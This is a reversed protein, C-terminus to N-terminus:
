QPQERPGTSPAVPATSSADPPTQDAAAASQNNAGRNSSAPATGTTLAALTGDIAYVYIRGGAVVPRATIPKKAVRTRGLLRGDSQAILHLWGEMDGVVILNGILAPATLQRNHLREQKWRGAGSVPDAGWVQDQSDTVFLHSDNAAIGAHSSLQRRWRVTGGEQDVAALDGNYTGVFVLNGVLIPDADIDAIRALESRGSPPTVTVEWLPTGDTTDLKVLKGGALGAIVGKPTITPTSSGRLTLIPAPYSVRWLETGKISDLAIVTDDLTHVIVKGDATHRPVSLIEGSAVARWQERGDTTALAVALGSSTGLILQDGALEPGASFPLGTKREWIVRGSDADAAVVLGRSDAVYVRGGGVAPVLYLRRGASGKTLRKSWLTHTTVEPVIKSLKTPPTPDKDGGFWPIYSCGTLTGVILLATCGHRAARGALRLLTRTRTLHRTPM